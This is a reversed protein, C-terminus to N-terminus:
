PDFPSFRAILGGGHWNNEVDNWSSNNRPYFIATKTNEFVYVADDDPDMRPISGKFYVSELGSCYSFARYGIEEVSAAISVTSVGSNNRFANNGISTVGDEITITNVYYGEWPSNSYNDMNGNGFIYLNGSEYLEWQINGGCNGNATLAVSERGQPNVTVDCSASM